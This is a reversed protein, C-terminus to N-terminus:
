GCVTPSYEDKDEDGQHKGLLLHEGIKKGVAVFPEYVIGQGLLQHKLTDSLDDVLHVPVGKVRAHEDGTLLRSLSPDIPSVLRPDTSGGKHYGKRLTPVSESDETIFQMGFGNGKDADRQEKNKLYNVPRYRPDDDAITPDLFDKLTKIETLQPLLNDFSFTLGATTAVMCWRIRNELHGFDRGSLEAEQTSYGMDRLQQRLIQASATGAYDPVNEFLVVAPQTKSLIVLASFVLHGVDPHDEMKTLGRKSKGAVSAGSCPLGMELIDLKPLQSLLWDDQALEQMPMALASTNDNWADNHELAHTLLDERIENAFELDVEFGAQKLGTHIAHSLVGGGHSVSGMKLPLGENINHTIRQLRERKKLESALPLLYVRDKKVVVRVASMGEFLATLDKSNIDIVPYTKDGKRKSSVTRSGNDNIQLVVKEHDILLDFKQGPMFGTRVAQAGDLYFYPSGRKTATNKQWSDTDM